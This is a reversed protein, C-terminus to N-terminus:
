NKDRIAIKYKSGRSTKQEIKEKIIDLFEEHIEYTVSNRGLEEAVKM